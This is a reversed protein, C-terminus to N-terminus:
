IIGLNWGTKHIDMGIFITHGVLNTKIKNM